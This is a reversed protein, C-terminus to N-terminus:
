KCFIFVTQVQPKQLKHKLYSTHSSCVSVSFFYFIFKSISFCNFQYTENSIMLKEKSNPFGDNFPFVFCFLFFMRMRSISQFQVAIDQLSYRNEQAFLEAFIKGSSSSCNPVAALEYGLCFASKQSREKQHGNFILLM